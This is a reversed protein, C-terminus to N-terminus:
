MRSCGKRCSARMSSSCGAAECVGKGATMTDGWERLGGGCRSEARATGLFGGAFGAGAGLSVASPFLSCGHLTCGLAGDIVAFVGAGGLIALLRSSVPPARARTWRGEITECCEFETGDM